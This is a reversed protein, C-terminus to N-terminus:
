KTGENRLMQIAEYAAKQESAKKTKGSGRGLEREGLCVATTFVKCHDPGTEELLVYQLQEKYDKQIMEQLITKSDYFLKKKEIDTMVFRIVFQRASEFGGDLYIAGIVAEFADSIISDRERGGTVEEGKGLLLFKPLKLERACDALTPECVLSARLKTMEGEQMDQHQEYIISSSIMELVADGLFELRENNDCVSKKENSYSSHTLAKKLLNTNKFHYCIKEELEKLQEM